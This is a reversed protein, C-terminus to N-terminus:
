EKMHLTKMSLFIQCFFVDQRYQVPMSITGKGFYMKEFILM